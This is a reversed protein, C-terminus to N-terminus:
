KVLGAVEDSWAPSNYAEVLRKLRDTPHGAGDTLGLFRLALLLHSQVAGSLHKLVSKDIRHPIGQEKLRGIFNKVTLFPAYPPRIKERTGSDGNAETGNPM